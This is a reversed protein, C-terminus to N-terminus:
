NGLQRGELTCDDPVYAADEIDAIQVQEVTIESDKESWEVLINDPKIDTHVIGKNHLAAIGRLADRLIRKTIPLGMDTYTRLAGITFIM